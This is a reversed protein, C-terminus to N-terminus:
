GACKIMQKTDRRPLMNYIGIYYPHATFGYAMVPFAVLLGDMEWSQINSAKAVAAEPALAFMAVVFAFLFTFGV